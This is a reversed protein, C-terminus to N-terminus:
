VRGGRTAPRRGLRIRSQRRRKILSGAPGHCGSRCSLSGRGDPSTATRRPGLAEWTDALLDYGKYARVFGLAGFIREGIPLGLARRAEDQEIRPITDDVPHELVAADVGSLERLATAAPESHVIVADVRRYISAFREADTATPEHPLVDHATWVLAARRGVGRLLREDFRRNIAHQFHVVSPRLERTTRLVAAAGGLWLGARNTYFRLGTPQDSGFLLNPMRAVFRCAYDAPDLLRSGLVAVEAGAAGVARAVLSTYSM